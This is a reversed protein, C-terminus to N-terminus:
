PITFAAEFRRHTECHNAIMRHIGRFGIAATAAFPSSIQELRCLRDLISNGADRQTPIPHDLPVISKRKQSPKRINRWSFDLSPPHHHSRFGKM